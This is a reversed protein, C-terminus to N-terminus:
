ILTLSFRLPLGSHDIWDSAVIPVCSVPRLCVFFVFVSCFVLFIFMRHVSAVLFVPSSGMQGRFNPLELRDYSVRWKTLIGKVGSYALMCLWLYSM